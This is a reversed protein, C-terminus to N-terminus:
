NGPLRPEIGPQSGHWLNLFHYKIDGQKVSLIIIYADLPIIWPFSYCGERCRMTTAISFPVKPDGEVEVYYWTNRDLVFLKCVNLQYWINRDFVFSKRVDIHCWTNNNLVFLKHVNLKYWTNRDLVFLKCM